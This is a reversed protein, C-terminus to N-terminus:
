SNIKRLTVVSTKVDNGLRTKKLYVIMHARTCRILRVKTGLYVIWIKRNAIKHDGHLRSSCKSHIM